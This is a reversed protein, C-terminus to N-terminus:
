LVQASLSVVNEAPPNVIKEILAALTKLAHAKEEDYRHRDYIGEVGNMVHGLVREAIDPRIGARSMLSRATRRLDHLGWQPMAPLKREFSKKRRSLGGMPSSGQGAFVYPNGAFRPQAKIIEIAVDPLKLEIANGKERKESPITWVGDKIDEWRMTAVKTKRQGTLLLMRIFGGFTGNDAARKWVARIEDDRLIRDRAREKPNSRRMGRVIPSAYDEHRAAYWNCITRIIRLGYDAATPGNRDEIEDLLNAVDGRRISEFDRGTWVPRIHSDFYARLHKASRLGKAEVHRKFWQDAVADLSQPGARDEGAKIAKIATRALERADDIKYLSASGITHWVQKGSPDRAVAAFSKAGNPTVRVYHGPLQPDPVAYRKAKPKLSSVAKDTLTRRAM